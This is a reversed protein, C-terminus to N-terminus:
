IDSLRGILSVYPKPLSSTNQCLNHHLIALDLDDLPPNECSNGQVLKCKWRTLIRSCTWKWHLSMRLCAQIIKGIHLQITAAAPATGKIDGEYTTDELAYVWAVIVTCRLHNWYVIPIPPAQWLIRHVWWCKPWSKCQMGKWNKEYPTLCLVVMIPLKV